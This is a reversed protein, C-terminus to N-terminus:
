KNNEVPPPLIRAVVNIRGSKIATLTTKYAYLGGAQIEQPLIFITTSGKVEVLEPTKNEITLPIKKRLGELGTVAVYLETTKGKKLVPKGVSSELKINHYRCEGASEGEMFKFTIIGAPETPSKFLIRRPTEASLHLKQNGIWLLTNGFDGDFRGYVRIVGGALAYAPCQFKETGTLSRQEFVPIEAQAAADGKPNKLKISLTDKEPVAWKAWGTEFGRDKGGIELTYDQLRELNKDRKNKKGSPSLSVKGSIVDGAAMDEPLNLIIEGHPTKFVVQHLGNVTTQTFSTGGMLFLPSGAFYITLCLASLFFLHLFKAHKM